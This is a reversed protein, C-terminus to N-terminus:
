VTAAAPSPDENDHRTAADVARGLEDALVKVKLAEERLLAEWGQGDLLDLFQHEDKVLREGLMWVGANVLLPDTRAHTAEAHLARATDQKSGPLSGDLLHEAAKATWRDIPHVYPAQEPPVESGFATWIDRTFRAGSTLGIGHVKTIEGHVKLPPDGLEAARRAWDFLNGHTQVLDILSTDQDTRKRLPNREPRPADVDDHETRRLFAEWTAHADLPPDADGLLDQTVEVLSATGPGQYATELLHIASQQPDTRSSRRLQEPTRYGANSWYLRGVAELCRLAYGM